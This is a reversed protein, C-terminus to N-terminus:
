QTGDAVHVLERVILKALPGLQAATLALSGMCPLEGAVDDVAVRLVSGTADEHSLSPSQLTLKSM